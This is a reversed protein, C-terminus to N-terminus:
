QAEVRRVILALVHPKGEYKAGEKWTQCGWGDRLPGKWEGEYVSGDKLTTASRKERQLAEIEDLPYFQPFSFNSLNLNSLDVGSSSVGKPDNQLNPTPTSLNTQPM